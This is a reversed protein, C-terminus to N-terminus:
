RGAAGQDHGGPVSEPPLSGTPTVAGTVPNLVVVTPVAFSSWTVAGTSPNLVVVQLTIM